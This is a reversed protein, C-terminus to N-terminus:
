HEVIRFVPHNPAIRVLDADTPDGELGFFKGTEFRWHKLYARLVDTKESDPLEAVRIQRTTGGVRLRGEGSARINRVWHTDGRPAVLYREGAFELPNVPTSRWQGSKRGRVSLITAGRPSMGLKVLGALLPNFIHTTAFGPKQYAPM